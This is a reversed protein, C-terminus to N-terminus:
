QWGNERLTAGTDPRDYGRQKKLQRLADDHTAKTVTVRVFTYAAAGCRRSASPVELSSRALDM